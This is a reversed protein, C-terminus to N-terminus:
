EPRTPEEDPSPSAAQVIRIGIAHVLLIGALVLVGLAWGKMTSTDLKLFLSVQTKALLALLGGVWAVSLGLLLYESNRHRSRWAQVTGSAFLASSGVAM